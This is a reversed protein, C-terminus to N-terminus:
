ENEYIGVRYQLGSDPDLRLAIPGRFEGDDDFLIAMLESITKNGLEAANLYRILHEFEAHIYSSSIYNQPNQQRLFQRLRVLDAQASETLILSPM